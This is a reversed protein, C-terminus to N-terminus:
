VTSYLSKPMGDRYKGRTQVGGVGNLGTITGTLVEKLPVIQDIPTLAVKECVMVPDLAHILVREPSSAFNAGAEMIGEFYSQCAGAFVVLDDLSPEYKRALKVSEMYYKSNKYNNINSLDKRRQEANMAQQPKVYADHGTLVLIDPTYQLLLAEVAKPQESEAVVRGVADINLDKYSKMCMDLYNKDGDIHLVKGPRRFFQAENRYFGTQMVNTTKKARKELKRMLKKARDEFNRIDENIKSPPLKVVDSEPADAIIRLNMGKLIIVIKDSQKIIDHVRFVIDCDYSKRGVLDGVKIDM